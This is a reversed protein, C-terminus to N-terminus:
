RTHGGFVKASVGMVALQGKKNRFSSIRNLSALLLWRIAGAVRCWARVVCFCPLQGVEGLKCVLCIAGLYFPKCEGKGVARGM